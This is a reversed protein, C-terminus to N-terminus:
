MQKWRIKGGTTFKEDYGMMLIIVYYLMYFIGHTHASFFSVFVIVAAIWKYPVKQCIANKLMSRM